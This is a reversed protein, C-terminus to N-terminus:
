DAAGEEALRVARNLADLVAERAGEDDPRELAYIAAKAALLLRPAARHLREIAEAEQRRRALEDTMDDVQPAPVEAPEAEHEAIMADRLREEEAAIEAQAQRQAEVEAQQRALEAREAEIREREERLRAEEAERQARLEEEQRAREAALRAEEAKREREIAEREAQLRKAEEAARAAEAAAEEAAEIMARMAELTEGRVQAAEEAFEEFSEDIALDFVERGLARVVALPKGAARVPAARIWDIRERIAAVRRREAELKAQRERERREEEAKIQRDYHQEGELLRAELSKAFADIRRGLDLVPAKAAKRAREVAIRPGRWAARGAIAQKMGASTRVECIVDRPHDAEIAAIGAAIKDFEVIATSTTEIAEHLAEVGPVENTSQTM